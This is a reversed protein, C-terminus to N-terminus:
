DDYTGRGGPWGDEGRRRAAMPPLLYYMPARAVGKADDPPRTEILSSLLLANPLPRGFSGNIDPLRQPAVLMM